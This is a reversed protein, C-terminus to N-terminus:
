MPGWLEEADTLTKRVPELLYHGSSNDLANHLETLQRRMQAICAEERQFFKRQADSAAFIRDIKEKRRRDCEKRRAEVAKPDHTKCWWKGGREVVGTRTCRPFGYIPNHERSKNRGECRNLIDKRPKM